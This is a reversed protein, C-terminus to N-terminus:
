KEIVAILHTRLPFCLTNIVPYLKGVVRGIPPALTTKYYDIRKAHPFLNSVESKSIGKVKKNNPNDYMFDYWLVIGGKKTMSFMKNALAKKKESNLESTFVTSQFVIDFYNAYGLEFADCTHITALPLNEKLFKGREPLIDNAYINNWGLGLYKFYILNYGHGAGIEIIKLESINSFRDKVIKAYKM